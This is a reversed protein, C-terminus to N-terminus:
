LVAGDQNKTMRLLYPVHNMSRTINWSLELLPYFQSRHTEPKYILQLSDIVHTYIYPRSMILSQERVFARQTTSGEVYADKISKCARNLTFTIVPRIRFQRYQRGSPLVQSCLGTADKGSCIVEHFSKKGGRNRM